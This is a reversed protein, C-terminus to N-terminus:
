GLSIGDEGYPTLRSLKVNVETVEPFKSTIATIQAKLDGHATPSAETQVLVAGGDARVDIDFRIDVLAAKIKAALALDAMAKRSNPTSAFQPLRATQSILEVADETTLNRIHIVMDYLSADWTDIGYLDRSWRRRHEDDKKIVALAADRSIGERQMEERVRDELDALIRVKLVHSIGSVFFHGALGHYVVNDQSFSKLLAARIYAIYKEKGQRGKFISPADHIARNLKIEPINYEKSADLMVDRSICQYGLRRAVNEAVEKGKSYSGRSITIVPM